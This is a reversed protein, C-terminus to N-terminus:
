RGIHDVGRRGYKAVGFDLLKVGGWPTVIINSPTVDRHVVDLRVGDRTRCGTCATSPAASRAPSTAAIAAANATRPACRACSRRCRRDRSTSSRWSCRGTTRVSSSAQVVNPHPASRPHAAEDAFMRVFDEDRGYAPLIRKVVVTASSVPRVSRARRSCRPWAARCGAVPDAPLTGATRPSTPTTSTVPGPGTVAAIKRDPVSRLLVQAITALLDSVEVPKAVYAVLVLDVCAMRAGASM